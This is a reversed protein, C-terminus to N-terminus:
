RPWAATGDLFTLIAEVLATGQESRFIAQAHASGPLILTENQNGPAEGAMATLRDTLGEGESGVFLKPYEGLAAVNGTASLLIVGSIGEPRDALAELAAGGGASAGVMVVGSARCTNILYSVGGRIADPSLEEMALVTFGQSVMTQAEAKWSAADYAAGHLLIVSREGARWLLASGHELDVTLPNAGLSDAPYVTVTAPTASDSTAAPTAEPTAGTDCPTARSGAQGLSTEGSSAWVLLLLALVSLLASGIISRRM